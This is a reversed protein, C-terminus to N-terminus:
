RREPRSRNVWALSLYLLGSVPSLPFGCVSSAGESSSLRRRTAPVRPRRPLTSSTKWSCSKVIPQLSGVGSRPTRRKPLLRNGLQPPPGQPNQVMAWCFCSSDATSLAFAESRDRKLSGRFFGGAQLWRLGLNQSWYPRIFKLLQCSVVCFCVRQKQEVQVIELSQAM